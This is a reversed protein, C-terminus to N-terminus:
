NAGDKREDNPIHEVPEPCEASGSFRYRRGREGASELRDSRALSERSWRIAQPLLVLSGVLGLTLTVPFTLKLLGPGLDGFLSQAVNQVPGIPLLVIIALIPLTLAFAWRPRPWAVAGFLMMLAPAFLLSTDYHHHYVCLLDLCVLPGLFGAADSIRDSGRARWGERLLFLAVAGACALSLIRSVALHGSLGYFLSVWDMRPRAIASWPDPSNINDAGLADFDAASHRYDAYAAAGMRVFGLANLAVWAVGCAIVGRFRRRFLLLGVFPLGLTM